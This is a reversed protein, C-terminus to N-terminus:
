SCDAIFRFAFANALRVRADQYQRDIYLQFDCGKLQRDVPGIQFVIRHLPIVFGDLTVLRADALVSDGCLNALSM